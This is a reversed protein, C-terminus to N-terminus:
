SKLKNISETLLPTFENKASSWSKGELIPAAWLNHYYWQPQFRRFDMFVPTSNIVRYDLLNYDEDTNGKKKGEDRSDSNISPVSLSRVAQAFAVGATPNKANKCMFFGTANFGEYHKGGAAKTYKPTPAWSMLGKKIEEPFELHNNAGIWMAVKGSVINNHMTRQDTAQWLVNEGKAGLNIIDAMVSDIAPDNLNIVYDNETATIYDKGCAAILGEFNGASVGWKDKSKDTLKKAYEVFKDWTWEGKYYLSRPDELKADTFVKKSYTIGTFPGMDAIMMYPKGGVKSKDIAPKVTKWFDDNVNIYSDIPQCLNKHPLLPWETSIDGFILDPVDGSSIWGALKTPLDVSDVTRYTVNLGYIKKYANTWLVVWESRPNWPIVVTLSGKPSPSLAPIKTGIPTQEEAKPVSTTGTKSSTKGISSTGNGSGAGGSEADATDNDEGSTRSVGGIDIEGEDFEDESETAKSEPTVKDPSKCSAFVFTLALMLILISFLRKKM